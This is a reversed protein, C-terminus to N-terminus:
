PLAAARSDAPTPSAAVEAVKGDSRVERAIEDAIAEAIYAVGRPNPHIGDKDFYGDLDPSPERMAPLPLFVVDDRFAEGLERNFDRIRPGLGRVSPKHPPLIVLVRAGAAKAQTIMGRYNEISEALPVRMHTNDVVPDLDRDGYAPNQPEPMRATAAWALTRYIASKMALRAWQSNMIPLFRMVQRDTFGRSNRRDNWGYQLVVFSPKLKPFFRQFLKLGQTSTFGPEALNVVEAAIGGASLRQEIRPAMTEAFRRVGWGWACSDGLHLIRLARVPENGTPVADLHATRFGLANIGDFGLVPRGTPNPRVRFIFEHDPYAMANSVVNSRQAPAMADWLWTPLETSHEPAFRNRIVVTHSAAGAAWWAARLGLELIGLMAASITLGIALKRLRTLLAPRSSTM